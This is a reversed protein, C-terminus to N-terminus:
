WLLEKRKYPRYLYTRKEFKYRNNIFSFRSFLYKCCIFSATVVIVTFDEQAAQNISQIVLPRYITKVKNRYNNLAPILQTDDLGKILYGIAKNKYGQKLLSKNSLTMKLLFWIAVFCRWPRLKILEALLLITTDRTTITGDFDYLAQISM